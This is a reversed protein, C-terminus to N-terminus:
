PQTKMRNLKACEHLFLTEFDYRMLKEPSLAPNLHYLPKCFLMEEPSHAFRLYPNNIKNIISMTLSYEDKTVLSFLPGEVAVKVRIRASKSNETCINEEVEALADLFNEKLGYLRVLGSIQNFVDRQIPKKQRLKARKHKIEKLLGMDGNGHGFPPAFKIM